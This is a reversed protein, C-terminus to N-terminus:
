TDGLVPASMSTPSSILSFAMALDDVLRGSDLRVRGALRGEVTFGHKRYLAVAGENEARVLLEIKSAGSDSKAWQMLQILLAQGHGKRWYGSHVCLDLGVIHALRKLLMPTLSGHAVTLGAIELALYRGVDAASQKIRDNFNEVTLEEPTSVLLGPFQAAIAQEALCFSTADHITALRITRM